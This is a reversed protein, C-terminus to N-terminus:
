EQLFASKYLTKEVKFSTSSYRNKKQYGLRELVVDSLNPIEV